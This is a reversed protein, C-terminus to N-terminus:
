NKLTTKELFDADMVLGDQYHLIVTVTGFGRAAQKNSDVAELWKLAADVTAESKTRKDQSM